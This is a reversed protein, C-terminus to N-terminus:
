LRFGSLALIDVHFVRHKIGLCAPPNLVKGCLFFQAFRSATTSKVVEFKFFFFFFFFFLELYKLPLSQKTDASLM